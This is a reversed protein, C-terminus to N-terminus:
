PLILVSHYVIQVCVASGSNIAGQILPLFSACYITRIKVIIFSHHLLMRFRIPLGVHKKVGAEPVLTETSLRGTGQPYWYAGTARRLPYGGADRGMAWPSLKLENKPAWDQGSSCPLHVDRWCAPLKDGARDRARDAGSGRVPSWGQDM